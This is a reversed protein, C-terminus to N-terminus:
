RHDREKRELLTHLSKIELEMAKLQQKLEENKVEARELRRALEELPKAKNVGFLGLKGDDGIDIKVLHKPDTPLVRGQLDIDGMRVVALIAGRRRAEQLVDGDSHEYSAVSAARGRTIYVVKTILDGKDVHDFDQDTFEVAIASGNVFPRTTADPTPIEITTFYSVGPRQPIDSLKL